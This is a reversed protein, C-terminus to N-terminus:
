WVKMEKMIDLSSMSQWGVVHFMYWWSSMEYSVLWVISMHRILKCCLGVRCVKKALWNVVLSENIVCSDCLQNVFVSEYDVLVSMDDIVYDFLCM